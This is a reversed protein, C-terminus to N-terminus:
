DIEVVDVRGVDPNGICRQPPHYSFRGEVSRYMLAAPAHGGPIRVNYLRCGQPGRGVPTYIRGEKVVASGPGASGPMRDTEGPGNCAMGLAIVPGLTLALIRIM